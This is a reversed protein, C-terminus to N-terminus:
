AGKRHAVRTLAEQVITDSSIGEMQAEPNLVIRHALVPVALAKVDDPLAFPRGQLLARAKSAQLLSLSARPSAGLYVHGHGRTYGTLRVVYETVAREAHVLRAMRQIECIEEPSLVPAVELAGSGVRELMHIEDSPEPYGLVLRVLFRDIQAEPLPYTGAQEVPNQTALVIFPHPLARTEGDVTAQTEQMAELLASQTKAPARNIEDGLVVNAFIPGKRLEFRGENPSLVYTGTIDAPMLDPTFQIRRFSCRLTAAFAKALTTKAVGPVGELLVHGQAFLAVLLHEAVWTPGVYARAVQTLVANARAAVQALRTEDLAQSLPATM